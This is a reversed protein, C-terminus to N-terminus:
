SSFVRRSIRVWLSGNLSSSSGRSIDVISWSVAGDRGGCLGSRCKEGDEWLMARDAQPVRARACPCWSHTRPTCPRRRRFQPRPSIRRGNPTREFHSLIAPFGNPGSRAPPALSVHACVCVGFGAHKDHGAILPSQISDRSLNSLVARSKDLFQVVPLRRSQLPSPWLTWAGAGHPMGERNNGRLVESRRRAKNSKLQGVKVKGEALGFVVQRARSAWPSNPCLGRARASSKHYVSFLHNIQNMCIHGLFLFCAQRHDANALRCILCRSCICQNTCLM